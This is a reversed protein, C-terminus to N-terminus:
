LKVGLENKFTFKVLDSSIIEFDISKITLKVVKLVSGAVLMSSIKMEFWSSVAAVIVQSFSENPDYATKGQVVVELESPFVIM